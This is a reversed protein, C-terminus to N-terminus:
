RFMINHQRLFMASSSAGLFGFCLGLPLPPFLITFGLAQVVLCTFLGPSHLFVGRNSNELSLSQQLFFHQSIKLVVYSLFKPILKLHVIFLLNNVQTPSEFAMLCLFATSM